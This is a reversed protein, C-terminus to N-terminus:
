ASNAGLGAGTWYMNSIVFFASVCVLSQHLAASTYMVGVSHCVKYYSLKPCPTVCSSTCLVIDLAIFKLESYYHALPIGFPHM